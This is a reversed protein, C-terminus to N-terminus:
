FEAFIVYQYRYWKTVPSKKSQLVPVPKGPVSVVQSSTIEQNPTGTGTQRTGTGNGRCIIELVMPSGLVECCRSGDDAIIWM